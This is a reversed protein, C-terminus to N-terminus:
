GNRLLLDRVDEADGVAGMNPRTGGQFNDIGIVLAIRDGNGAPAAQATGM